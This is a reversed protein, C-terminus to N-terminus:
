TMRTCWSIESFPKTQKHTNLDDPTSQKISNWGPSAQSPIYVLFCLKVSILYSKVSPMRCYNFKLSNINLVAFPSLCTNVWWRRKMNLGHLRDIKVNMYFSLSWLMHIFLLHCIFNCSYPPLYVYTTKKSVLFSWGCLMQRLHIHPHCIYILISSDSNNIRSLM